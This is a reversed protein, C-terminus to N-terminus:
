GRFFRLVKIAIVTFLFTATVWFWTQQIKEFESIKREAIKPPPVRKNLKTIISNKLELQYELSDTKCHAVLQNNRTEIVTVINNSVTEMKFDKLNGYEDCLEACPNEVLVTDGIRTIYITTDIINEIVFTSDITVVACTNCIAQKKVEQRAIRKPASCSTVALLIVACM